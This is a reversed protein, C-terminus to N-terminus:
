MHLGNTITPNVKRPYWRLFLFVGLTTMVTVVLSGEIGFVGGTFLAPGQLTLPHWNKAIDQGSVALGLVPGLLFNWIFHIAIPLWLNGTLYYAVSFLIGALFVNIAPLRVGRFGAVHYLMFTLSSILIAWTTNTQSQITQLIYSRALVEQIVTNLIMAVAAVALASSDLAGSSQLTIWGFLWLVTLSSALWLFGICAGLLIDRALHDPSFGLTSFSRRDVFRAMIWAAILITLTGTFNIYLRFLLPSSQTLYEIRPALLVVFPAYLVAWLIFFAGSKWLIIWIASLWKLSPVSALERTM